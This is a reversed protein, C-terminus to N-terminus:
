PKKSGAKQGAKGKEEEPPDERTGVEPFFLENKKGDATEETVGPESRRTVDDLLRM